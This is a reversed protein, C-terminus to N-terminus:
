EKDDDESMLGSGAPTELTSIVTKMKKYEPSTRSQVQVNGHRPHLRRYSMSTHSIWLPRLLM